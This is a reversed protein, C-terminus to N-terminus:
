ERTKIWGIIPLRIRSEEIRIVSNSVYFSDKAKGKKKFKPRGATKKFFRKFAKDLDLFPKQNADKPSEYIWPFQEGKIANFAKNLCFGTPKDGNSYAKNWAGLAYNWSFRSVGCAKTFAVVQEKTPVLRIKHSLM